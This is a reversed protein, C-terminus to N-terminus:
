PSLLNRFAIYRHLQNWVTGHLYTWKIKKVRRYLVLSPPPPLPPSCSTVGIAERPLIQFLSGSVFEYKLICYNSFRSSRFTPFMSKLYKLVSSRWQAFLCMNPVSNARIRIPMRPTYSLIGLYELVCSAVYVEFITSLIRVTKGFEFLIGQFVLFCELRCVGSGKELFILISWSRVIIIM